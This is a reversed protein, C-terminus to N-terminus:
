TRILRLAYVQPHSEERYILEQKTGVVYGPPTIDLPEWDVAWWDRVKFCGRIQDYYDRHDTVVRLAGFPKLIRHIEKVFTLDILRFSLGISSPFPTPFYIHVVDFVSDVVWDRIFLYAEMNVIFLNTLGIQSARKAAIQSSNTKLEVGVFTREKHLNALKCIFDGTSIGIKLESIALPHAIRKNLEENPLDNETLYNTM